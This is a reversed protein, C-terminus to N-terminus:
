DISSRLPVVPSGDLEVYGPATGAYRLSPFAEGDRECCTRCAVSFHEPRARTWDMDTSTRVWGGDSLRAAPERCSRCLLVAGSGDRHGDKDHM